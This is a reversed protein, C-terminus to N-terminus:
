PGVGGMSGMFERVWEVLAVWLGVGGVDDVSKLLSM